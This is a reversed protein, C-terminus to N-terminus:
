DPKSAPEYRRGEADIKDEDSYVLEADPHRDVEVALLYLAHEALEDDHDLFAVWDGEALALASNTAAAMHGRTPRYTVKIRPDRARYQELVRRVHPATSGDDAICLEWDPYVQARVSDIARVLWREPTDHTAM